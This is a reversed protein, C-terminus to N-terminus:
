IHCDTMLPAARLLSRGAAPCNGCDLNATTIRVVHM